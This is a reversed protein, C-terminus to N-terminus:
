RTDAALAATAEHALQLEERAPVVFTRVRSGPATLEREAMPEDGTAREAIQVGFWSLAGAIAARAVADHEGIGGTFAVADLGGLAAVCSGFATVVRHLWV